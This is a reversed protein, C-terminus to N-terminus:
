LSLLEKYYEVWCNTIMKGDFEKLARERSNAGMWIKLNPEDYFRRMCQYLSEVDGVMCKLGTENEVYADQVGYADSCISPLGVCAAEIVSSGFGERYTPLVFVDGANLINEPRPTHGYFYFNEGNIINKYYPLRNLYGEEDTGVFLLFVDKVEGALRNFAGYLEGIGKDHNLRGMFIFTLVNEKIGIEERLQQRVQLNPVFRKSNVGCISGAGFVIAQGEHLLGKQVLFARQSKGDVLIHNDLAIIMKDVGKTLWNMLGNRSAWYQGTFIHIRHKIGCLRAAIGTILGAKPTVSHVADFKMRKMYIFMEWVAKIDSWPSIRREINIHHWGALALGKVEEACKINAVLYVDYVESLAQIHDRLFAQATGPIAVVFCIRKKM